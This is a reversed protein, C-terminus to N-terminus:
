EDDFSLSETLGDYGAVTNPFITTARDLHAEPDALAPGYHTLWLRRAGGDRALTAAEAFTLHQAEWRKPTDEPGAYMADAILLDTGQGGASVFATLSASPRTDTALVVRLGRRAEGLVNRPVFAETGVTVTEGHQLRRWESRPIGLLEAQVQNFRPARPVSLAYALCPVEHEVEICEVILDHGEIPRVHEGGSLVRVHLPYPLRPAVVLLGRVIEVMPEPGYITLPDNEDKGSFALTLLLGPVGLVHDAHMHTLLITNLNRLGWGRERIGVQTGEGCDILVLSGNYRVLASSLRRRPLPQTGGTGLLCIDLM